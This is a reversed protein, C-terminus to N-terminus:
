YNGFREPSRSESRPNRSEKPAATAPFSKVRCRKAALLLARDQTAIPLGSRMALDLYSADYTSLKQDRALAVVETLVREPPEQEVLIPLGRLLQLFRVTDAKGLRGNREAVLLANGLELPWIPPVLAHGVSLQELVSDTYRDSEDEFCWAMVVSNDLVFRDPKM